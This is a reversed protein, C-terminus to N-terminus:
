NTKMAKSSKVQLLTERNVVNPLLQIGSISPDLSSVALPYSLGGPNTIVTPGFLSNTFIVKRAAPTGIPSVGPSAIQWATGNHVGVEMSGAGNFGANGEADAYQLTIEPNFQPISSATITWTHNIAVNSLLIAPKIGTKVNVTYNKGGGNTIYVTNISTADVGIPLTITPVNVNNAIM